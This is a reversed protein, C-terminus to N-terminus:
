ELSFKPKLVIVGLRHLNTDALLARRARFYQERPADWARMGHSIGVVEASIHEPQLARSIAENVELGTPSGAVIWHRPRSPISPLIGLEVLEAEHLRFLVLNLARERSDFDTKVQVQEFESIQDPTARERFRRLVEERSLRPQSAATPSPAAPHSAIPSQHRYCCGALCLASAIAVATSITIRVINDPRALSTHQQQEM